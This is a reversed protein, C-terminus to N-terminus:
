YNLNHIKSPLALDELLGPGQLQYINLNLNSIKLSSASPLRSAKNEDRLQLFAWFSHLVCVAGPHM